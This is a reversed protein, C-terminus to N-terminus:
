WCWCACRSTGEERALWRRCASYRRQTKLAPARCLSSWSVSECGGGGGAVPSLGLMMIHKRATSAGPVSYEMECVRVGVVVGRGGGAVPSLGLMAKANETGAGPVSLEAAHECTLFSYLPTSAHAKRFHVRPLTCNSTPLTLRREDMNLPPPSPASSPTFHTAAAHTCLLCLGLGESVNHVQAKGFLVGGLLELLRDVLARACTCLQEYVM